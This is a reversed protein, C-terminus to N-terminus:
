LPAGVEKYIFQQKVLLIREPTSSEIGTKLRL